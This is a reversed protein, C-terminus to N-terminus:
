RSRWYRQSFLGLIALVELRGLLMVVVLAMKGLVSFESYAPWDQTSSDSWGAGYVPGATTFNAIVSTLAADFPIGSAAVAITGGAIVLIAVVFFSWIAKMLQIDYRETGFHSARVVHPYVLRDLESWSQVMMGGMRYHKLGGSTSFASGGLFVIFLVLVLPLLTFYGPRSEIGSTSVLAAANVLAEVLRFFPGSDDSAGSGIAALLFALTLVGALALVVYSERHELLNRWQLHVVMRHWFVSTAGALLLGAFIALGIPSLITDLSADFPLLGGTSTATMALTVAHFARNGSLFFLLAGIGTAAAYLLLLRLAFGSLRTDRSRLDAGNTITERRARLGGIRLPALILIISLLALYGGLWQLQIRWFLVSQPLEDVSTWLSAGSTTMASVSDFLADAYTLETLDRLMLAALLPLVTWVLLLLLLRGVQPVAATRGMTAVLLSAFLFGFILFYFGFRVAEATEGSLLGILVPGLLSLTFGCGVVAFYFLVALM